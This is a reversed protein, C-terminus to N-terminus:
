DDHHAVALWRRCGSVPQASKALPQVYSAVFRYPVDLAPGTIRWPTMLIQTARGDNNSHDTQDRTRSGRTTRWPRCVKASASASIFSVAHYNAIM